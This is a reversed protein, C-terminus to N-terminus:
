NSEIKVSNIIREAIKRNTENNMYLCQVQWLKNDVSLLIVRSEGEKNDLKYNAKLLRGSLGSRDAPGINYTFGEVRSKSSMGNKQGQATGEAAGDLNATLGDLYEIYTVSVVFPDSEYIYFFFNKTYSKLEEMSPDTKAKLDYPFEFTLGSVDALRRVKWESDEINLTDSPKLLLPIIYMMVIFAISGSIYSILRGRKKEKEYEPMGPFVGRSELEERKNFLGM